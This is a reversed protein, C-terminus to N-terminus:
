KGMDRMEERRCYRCSPRGNVDTTSTEEGCFTCLLYTLELRREIAALLTREEANEPSRLFRHWRVLQLRGADRVEAANPFREINPGDWGVAKSEHSHIM